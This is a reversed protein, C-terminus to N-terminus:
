PATVYGHFASTTNRPRTASPNTFNLSGPNTFISLVSRASGRDAASHTNRVSVRTTVVSASDRRLNRHYQARKEGPTTSIRRIAIRSNFSLASDSEGDAVLM